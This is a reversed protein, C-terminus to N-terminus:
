NKRKRTWKKPKFTMNFPKSLFSFPLGRSLLAFVSFFAVVSLGFFDKARKLFFSIGSGLGTATKEL